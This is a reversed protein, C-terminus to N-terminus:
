INENSWRVGHRAGFEEILALLDSMESARLRSTSMGVPVMGGNEDPVWRARKLAHVMFDKWDEPPMRVGHWELQKSIDDLMAWM